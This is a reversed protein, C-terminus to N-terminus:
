YGDILKQVVLLMEQINLYKDCYAKMCLMNSLYKGYKGVPPIEDGFVVECIREVEPPKRLSDNLISIVQSEDVGNKIITIAIDQDQVEGPLFGASRFLMYLTHNVRSGAWTFLHIKNNERVITKEGLRNSRFENIAWDLVMKTNTELWTPSVGKHLIEYM